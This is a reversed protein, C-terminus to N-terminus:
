RKTEGTVGEDEEGMDKREKMMVEREESMYIGTQVFPKERENKM